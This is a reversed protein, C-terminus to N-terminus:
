KEAKLQKLAEELVPDQGKRLAELNTWIKTDPIVGIGVFETGDGMRDRKCCIRAWGGGPLQFSLPQGTSGGSPMGILPGRKSVKYAALFDEGASLTKPGCLVAVPGDFQEKSPYIKNSGEYADVPSQWARFSPRYTRTEWKDGAFEKTVLHSLIDWGVDTSGGDNQRADIVLRGAKRIEPLLKAFAESPQNNECTNFAFYATGDDLIKFEYPKRAIGGIPKARSLEVTKVSGDAHEVELKVPKGVPGRLLMYTYIRVDNDQPTSSSVRKAWTKQGYEIADVGDIKRIVDGVAFSLKKFGESPTTTVVVQNGLRGLPLGPRVEMKPWLSAPLSVDTHSDKLFAIFERLFNYYEYRSKASSVKPLYSRYAADWDLTKVLDFNAFNYKAESWILSLGAIRDELSLKENDSTSYPLSDFMRNPNRSVLDVLVADIRKNPLLAAVYKNNKLQKPYFGFFMANKGKLWTEPSKLYGALEEVSRETNPVDKLRAYGGIIQILIDNVQYLFGPLGDGGKLSRIEPTLCYEKLKQLDAIAKRIQDPTSKEDELIDGALNRQKQEYEWIENFKKQDQVTTALIAAALLTTM